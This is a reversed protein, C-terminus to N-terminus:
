QGQSHLEPMARAHGRRIGRRRRTTRRTCRRTAVLIAFYTDEFLSSPASTRLARPHAIRARWEIDGGANEDLKEEASATLGTDVYHEFFRITGDRGV